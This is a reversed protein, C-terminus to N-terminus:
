KLFNNMGAGACGNRRAELLTNGAVTWAYVGKGAKNMSSVALETAFDYRPGWYVRGGLWDLYQLNDASYASQQLGCVGVESSYKRITGLYSWSFALFVAKSSLGFEDVTEVLSAIKSETVNDATKIEIFPACGYTRCVALYEELTPVLCTSYEADLWSGASLSRIQSLTKGAVPGSGDTTRDVTDDHMCVAYGDATWQVDTELGDFGLEGAAAFALATNEPYVASLGRHAVRMVGGGPVGPRWWYDRSTKRFGFADDLILVGKDDIGSQRYLVGEPIWVSWGAAKAADIADQVAATNAAIRADQYGASRGTRAAGFDLANLIGSAPATGIQQLWLYVLDRMAQVDDVASLFDAFFDEPTKSSTVPVKVARDVERVLDQREACDQDFRDEIEESDFRTGNRYDDEQVYPMRRRLVIVVGSAPATPFTVTGGTDTIEISCSQSVESESAGDGVYVALQGRNWVKFNFAFERAAGNGIYRNQNNRSELTM